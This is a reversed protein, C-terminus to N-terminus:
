RDPAGAYARHERKYEELEADARAADGSARLRDIEALWAKPTRRYDPKPATSAALAPAPAARLEGSSSAEVRERAPAMADASKDLRRALLAEPAPAEAKARSDAALDVVVAGNDARQEALVPAEAPAAASMEAADRPAPAAAAAPIEIERSVNQVSVEPKKVVDHTGVRLIVTFALVLTAALAVPM